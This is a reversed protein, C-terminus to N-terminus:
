GLNFLRTTNALLAQRVVEEELGKIAAIAKAVLVVYSPENRKGRYPKPAVYPADTEILLRDLPTNKIVEDYDHSFTIVGTFSLTYGLDLFQRAIEWSGAFFHVDGPRDTLLKNQNSKLMHIVDEYADQTKGSSRVHLMLPKGVEHALDIHKQFIERQEQKEIEGGENRFYDLGCEGIGVVKSHKALKLYYDYDFSEGRSTFAKGGEGLEAEDHYSKHTHVPHLGIIAYLGDYKIALDIAGQSTDKQTGVNIMGVGADLARKIVDDREADFAAFNVHTHIDIYKFNTVLFFNSLINFAQSGRLSGLREEM